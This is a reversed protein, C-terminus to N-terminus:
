NQNPAPPSVPVPRARVPRVLLYVIAMLLLAFVASMAAILPLAELTYSGVSLISRSTATTRVTDSAGRYAGAGTEAWIDYDGPELTPSLVIFDGEANSRTTISVAKAGVRVFSVTVETTPTMTKGFVPLRAGAPVLPRIAGLEPKSVRMSTFTDSADVSNGARDIAVLRVTNEGTAEYKMTYAGGVFEKAPVSKVLVDNIYVEYRELGSTIDQVDSTFTLTQAFDDYAFTMAQKVPPATDVRVIYTATPGWTGKVRARATFYWVGDNLDKVQRVAVPPIHSTRPVDSSSASVGTQIADAGTPVTWEFVPSADTYWQDQDPHQKSTIRLPAISSSTSSVQAPTSVVPAKVPAPPTKEQAVVRLTTGGTSEIVDTGLGDNARVAASAFTIAADGIKKAKVTFSIVTGSSGTFGPTPIGGNFTVTGGNHSPEEVWLTFISGTKSLSVVDLYESPVQISADANNIAVGKSDLIVSVTTTEGLTLTGAKSSMKLTAADAVGAVCLVSATCIGAIYSFSNRQLSCYM